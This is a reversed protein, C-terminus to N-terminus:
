PSSRGRPLGVKTRRNGRAGPTDGTSRRWPPAIPTPGSRSRGPSPKARPGRRRRCACSTPRAPGTRSRADLEGGRRGRRGRRAALVVADRRRWLRGTDDEDVLKAGGERVLREEGFREILVRRVEINREADISASRSRAGSADVVQADVQVGHWAWVELGDGVLWPRAWSATSAGVTMSPRGAAARVRDRARGLGVVSRRQPSSSGPMSGSRTCAVVRAIAGSGSASCRASPRSSPRGSTSSGPNCRRSPRARPSRRIWRPVPPPGRRRPSCRPALQDGIMERLVTWSEGLLSAGLRQLVAEDLPSRGGVGARRSGRRGGPAPAASRRPGRARLRPDRDRTPDRPRARRWGPCAALHSRSGSRSGRTWRLDLDLPEALANWPQNSGTRRRGDDGPRSGVIPDERRLRGRRAGAAPSEVWVMQPRDGPRATSRGSPGSPRPRDALETSVATARGADGIRRESEAADLVDDGAMLRDGPAVRALRGPGARVRAPHRRPLHRARARDGRAGRAPAARGLAAPLARHRRAVATTAASSRTPTAPPRATRSCSAVRDRAVPKATEPIADVPSSCSTARASWPPSPKPCVSARTM